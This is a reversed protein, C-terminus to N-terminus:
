LPLFFKPQATTPGSGPPTSDQSPKEETLVLSDSTSDSRVSPEDRSNLEIQNLTVAMDRLVDPLARLSNTMSRMFNLMQLMMQQQQGQETREKQLSEITQKLDQVEKCYTENESRLKDNRRREEELKGRTLEEKLEVDASRQLVQLKEQKERELANELCKMQEWYKEKEQRLVANQALLDQKNKALKKLEQTLDSTSKDELEASNAMQRPNNDENPVLLEQSAVVHAASGAFVLMLLRHLNKRVVDERHVTVGFGRATNYCAQNKLLLSSGLYDTFM